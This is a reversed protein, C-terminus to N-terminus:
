RRRRKFYRWVAQLLVGHVGVCLWPDLLADWVNGTPLRLLVYLLLSVCLVLVLRTAGLGIWLLAVVLLGWALAVPGMGWAYVPMPWLAFSDLALVWGLVAALAYLGYPKAVFQDASSVVSQEAPRLLDALCWVVLVASPYQFALGWWYVPSGMDPLATLGAALAVSLGVRRWPSCRLRVFRRQLQLSLTSLVWALVVAWGCYLWLQQVCLGPLLPRAAWGANMWTQLLSLLGDM